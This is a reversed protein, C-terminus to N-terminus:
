AQSEADRDHSSVRVRDLQHELRRLILFSLFTVPEHHGIGVRVFGDLRTQPDEGDFAESGEGVFRELNARTVRVDEACFICDEHNLSVDATLEMMLTKFQVWELRSSSESPKWEHKTASIKTRENEQLEM